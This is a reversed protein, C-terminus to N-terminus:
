AAVRWGHLMFTIRACNRVLVANQTDAMGLQPQSESGDAQYVTWSVIKAITAFKPDQDNTSFLTNVNSLAINAYVDTGPPLPDITLFVPFPGPAIVSLWYGDINKLM